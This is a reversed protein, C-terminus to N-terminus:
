SILLSEGSSLRPILFHPSPFGPLPVSGGASHAVSIGLSDAAQVSQFPALLISIFLVIPLFLILCRWPGSLLQSSAPVRASPAATVTAAHLEDDELVAAPEGLLTGDPEAEAAEAM